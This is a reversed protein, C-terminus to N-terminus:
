ADTPVKKGVLGGAFLGALGILPTSDVGAVQCVIIGVICALTCAGICADLVSFKM